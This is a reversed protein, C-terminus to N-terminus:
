GRFIELVQTWNASNSSEKMKLYFTHKPWTNALTYSYDLFNLAPTIWVHSKQTLTLDLVSRTNSRTFINRSEEEITQVKCMRHASSTRTSVKVSPTSTHVGPLLPVPGQHLQDWGEPQIQSRGGAQCQHVRGGPQLRLKKKNCHLEFPLLFPTSVAPWHWALNGVADM